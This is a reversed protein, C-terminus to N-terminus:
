MRLDQIDGGGDFSEIDEMVLNGIGGYLAVSCVARSRVKRITINYTEDSNSHRTEYIHPDGIRVGAGGREMHPSNQSSDFVGEIYIDHVKYTGQSLLRVNSCYASSAINRIEVNCLDTPLGEVGFTRELGGNLASLAITDDETFGTINEIVINQCGVRLDIGDANKVLAEKYFGRKLGRYTTGDERVGIDCACFDVDSIRGNRAYIFCLAWWRQNRAAIRRIEFNEVNTFLIMNNNWIAPFGNKNHTKESLGNYEGGDLIAEGRGIIKINRDCGSVTKGIETSHHENVFINTFSGDALRLHCNELILTFDSPIRVPKDIEYNGTVTATRTGENVARQILSNIYESGGVTFKKNEM